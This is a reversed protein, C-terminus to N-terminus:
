EEQEKRTIESLQEHTIVLKDSLPNILISNGDRVVNMEQLSTKSPAFAHEQAKAWTDYERITTFLVFFIQQEGTSTDAAVAFAYHIAPYEGEKREDILIPAILPIDTLARLYKAKKTQKLRCINFMAESNYYQRGTDQPLVPIKVTDDYASPKLVITKIGLGRCHSLFFAQKFHQDESMYTGPIRDCFQQAELDSEFAYCRGNKDIYLHGTADSLIQHYKKLTLINSLEPNM